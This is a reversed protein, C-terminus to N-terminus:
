KKKKEAHLLTLATALDEKLDDRYEKINKIPEGAEMGRIILGFTNEMGLMLDQDLVGISVELKSAEFSDFYISQVSRSSGKKDGGKYIKIAKDVDAMMDAGIKDWDKDPITERTVVRPAAKAVAGRIVPLGRLEADLSSRLADIYVQVKAAAEGSRVMEVIKMFRAEMAHHVDPSRHQKIAKGLLTSTYGDFYAQLAMEQARAYNKLKLADIVGKMKSDIMDQDLKWVQAIEGSVPSETPAAEEDGYTPEAKLVYGGKLQKVVDRIESVLSNVRDEVADYPSKLKIMERIGSFEAELLYNKKASINIRIPGELNEFVKFYADEANIKAEKINGAKYQTLAKEFYQDIRKLMGEYDPEALGLDLFFCFMSLICIIMGLVCPKNSKIKIM